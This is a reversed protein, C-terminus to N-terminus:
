VHCSAGASIGATRLTGFVPFLYFLQFDFLVTCHFPRLFVDNGAIESIHLVAPAFFFAARNEARPGLGHPNHPTLIKRRSCGAATQKVQRQILVILYPQDVSGNSEDFFPDVVLRLKENAIFAARTLYLHHCPDIGIRRFTCGRYIRIRVISPAVRTLLVYPETRQCLESLPEVCPPLRRVVRLLFLDRSQAPRVKGCTVVAPRKHFGAIRPPPFMVVFSSAGQPHLIVIASDCRILRYEEISLFEDAYKGKLPMTEVVIIERDTNNTFYLHQFCGPREDVACKVAM